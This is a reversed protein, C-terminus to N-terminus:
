VYIKRGILTVFAELANAGAATTNTVEMEIEMKPPILWSECFVYPQLGTGVALQSSLLGTSIRRGTEADRIFFDYTGTPTGLVTDYAIGAIKYVDFWADPDAPFYFFNTAGAALTINTEEKNTLFFPMSVIGRKKEQKLFNNLKSSNAAQPYFRRGGIMPRVDNAVAVRNQVSIQISAHESVYLWEPLVMPYSQSGFVTNGHVPRNMLPKDSSNMKMEVIFNHDGTTTFLDSECVLNQGQFPGEQTVTMPATVTNGVVAGLAMTENNRDPMVHFPKVHEKMLNISIGEKSPIVTDIM